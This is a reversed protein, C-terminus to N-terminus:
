IKTKKFVSEPISKIITMIIWWFWPLYIVDKKQDIARVIGRAVTEPKAWLLGKKFHATMPTDVFGPKITLVHVGSKVLRQRLGQLFITLGGKAAGYVYNGARGRDGSVSSIVAITGRKTTEFQNALITLLSVTSILNTNLEQNTVAFSQESKKQDGLTGHAILVIDIEGLAQRAQDILAQHTDFDNLDQAATGAIIAGRVKLDDAVIKLRQENRDVLFMKEGRAAWLRGVEQAIASAAGFILINSM